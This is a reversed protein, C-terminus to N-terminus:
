AYACVARYLVCICATAALVFAAHARMVGAWTQKSSQAENDADGDAANRRRAAKLLVLAYAISALDASFLLVDRTAVMRLKVSETRTAGGTLPSLATSFMDLVVGESAAMTAHVLSAIVLWRVTCEHVFAADSVHAMDGLPVGVHARLWSQNPPPACDVITDRDLLKSLVPAVYNRYDFESLLFM